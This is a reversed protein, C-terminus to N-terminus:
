KEENIVKISQNVQIRQAIQNQQDLDDIDDNLHLELWRGMEGGILEVKLKRDYRLNELEIFNNFPRTRYTHDRHMEFATIGKVLKNLYVIVVGVVILNFLAM